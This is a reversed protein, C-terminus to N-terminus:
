DTVNGVGDSTRVLMQTDYGLCTRPSTRAGDEDYYLDLWHDTYALDMMQMSQSLGGTAVPGTGIYNKYNRSKHYNFGFNVFRLAGGRVKAAYVFGMQDFSPRAKDVDHFSEAGPQVLASASLAVDSSRYLGIGAPNTGIVSLDAGLAGMAGGMGVFRATGNLDSGAVAEVKYIDQAQAAAAAAMLGAMLISKTKM